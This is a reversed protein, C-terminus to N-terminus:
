RGVIAEFAAAAVAAVGVAIGDISSNQLHTSEAAWAGWPLKTDKRVLVTAKM